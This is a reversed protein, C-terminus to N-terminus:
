KYNPKFSVSVDFSYGFVSKLSILADYVNLCSRYSGSFVSRSFPSASDLNAVLVQYVKHVSM